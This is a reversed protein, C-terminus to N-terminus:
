GCVQRMNWKRSWVAYIDIVLGKPEKYVLMERISLQKRYGGASKQDNLEVKFKLKSPCKRKESEGWVASTDKLYIKLAGFVAGENTLVM